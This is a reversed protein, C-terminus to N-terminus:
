AKRCEIAPTRKGRRHKGLNRSHSCAAPDSESARAFVRYSPIDVGMLLVDPQYMRQGHGAPPPPPCDWALVATPALPRKVTAM